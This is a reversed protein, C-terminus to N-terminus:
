CPPSSLRFTNPTTCCRSQGSFRLFTENFPQSHSVVPLYVTEHSTELSCLTKTKISQLCPDIFGTFSSWIHWDTCDQTSPQRVYGRPCLGGPDSGGTLPLAPRFGLVYGGTSISCLTRHRKRNYSIPDQFSFKLIPPRLGGSMVGQNLVGM